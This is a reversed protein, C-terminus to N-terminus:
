RGTKVQPEMRERGRSALGAISTFATCVPGLSPFSGASDSYTFALEFHQQVWNKGAVAPTQQSCFVHRDAPPRYVVAPGEGTSSRTV